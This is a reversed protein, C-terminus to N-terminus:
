TPAAEFRNAVVIAIRVKDASTLRHRGTMVDYGVASIRELVEEYIRVILELIVARDTPLKGELALLHSRGEALCARARGALERVLATTAEGQTEETAELRLEAESLGYRDLDDNALYFLGSDGTLLDEALDRLIHAIYAFRGLSRGCEELSFGEVPLYQGVEADWESTILDVYITTPGIAAGEAYDLFEGFTAFRSGELDRRMSRFFRDWVGPSQPFTRGARRFSELIDEAGAQELLHLDQSAPASGALCAHVARRWGELVALERNTADHSRTPRAVYDDVRDDVVRMVSYLGCFARYRDEDRFLCSTRYLNNRDRAAIQEAAGDAGDLSGPKWIAKM